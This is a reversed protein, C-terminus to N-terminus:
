QKGVLAPLEAMLKAYEAKAQRYIPIDRDGDKGLMLFDNYSKCAAIKDDDHSAGPWAPSARARRYRFECIPRLPRDFIRPVRRGHGAQLHGTGRLCTPQLTPFQWSLDGMRLACYRPRFIDPIGRGYPLTGSVTM